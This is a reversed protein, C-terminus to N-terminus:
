PYATAFGPLRYLARVFRDFLRRREDEEVLGRIAAREGASLPELARLFRALTSFFVPPGARRECLPVGDVIMAGAREVCGRMEAWRRQNRAIRAQHLCFEQCHVSLMLLFGAESIAGVVAQHALEMERRARDFDELCYFYYAAVGHYWRDLVCRLSPTAEGMAELAGAYERLRACGEPLRRQQMHVLAQRSLEVTDALRAYQAAWASGEDGSRRAFHLWDYDVATASM